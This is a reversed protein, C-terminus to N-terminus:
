QRGGITREPGTAQSMLELAGLIRGVESEIWNRVRELDTHSTADEAKVVAEDFAKAMRHYFVGVDIDQHEEIELEARETGQRALRKFSAILAERHQEVSSM